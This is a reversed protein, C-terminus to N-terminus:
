KKSKKIEELIESLTQKPLNTYTEVRSLPVGDELM